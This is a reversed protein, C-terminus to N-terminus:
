RGRWGNLALSSSMGATSIFLREKAFNGLLANLIAQEIEHPEYKLMKITYFSRLAGSAAAESRYFSRALPEGNAADDPHWLIYGDPKESDSM